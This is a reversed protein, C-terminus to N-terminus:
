PRVPRLYHSFWRYFVKLFGVGKNDYYQPAVYGCPSIFSFNVGHLSVRVLDACRDPSVTFELGSGNRVQLLHMGDGKGSCLRYEEVGRVQLPHGTYQELNKM